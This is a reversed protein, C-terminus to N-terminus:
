YETFETVTARWNRPTGIDYIPEPLIIGRVNQNWLPQLLRDDDFEIGNRKEQRPHGEHIYSFGHELIYRGTGYAVKPARDEKDPGYISFPDKDKREISISLTMHRRRPTKVTLGIWHGPSDEFAKCLLTMGGAKPHIIDPYLVATPEKNVWKKACLLADGLGQPSSQYYWKIRIEPHNVMWVQEVYSRILQKAKNIIIGIEDIGSFVVADMGHHLAPYSAIPLLEKPIVKSWPYWRTGLGAAPVLAKM